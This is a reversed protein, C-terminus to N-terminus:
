QRHQDWTLVSGDDLAVRAARQSAHEGRGALGCSNQLFCFHNKRRAYHQSGSDPAFVEGARPGTYRTSRCSRRARVVSRVFYNGVPLRAPVPIKRM